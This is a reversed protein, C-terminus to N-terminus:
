WSNITSLKAGLTLFRVNQCGSLKACNVSSRKGVIQFLVNWEICNLMM